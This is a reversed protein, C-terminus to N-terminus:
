NPLPYEATIKLGEADGSVLEIAGTEMNVTAVEWLDLEQMVADGHEFALVGEIYVKVHAYTAWFEGSNTYHVGVTYTKAEPAKLAFVEPGEGNFDALLFAPDDKPDDLAGWDPEPNLWYCDYPSNYWPDPEGNGDIDPGTAWPHTVHLDLDTGLGGVDPDGPTDWYLEVYLNEAPIATVEVEAPVCSVGGTADEVDLSFKYVGAISAMFTTEVGDEGDLTHLIGDPATVSWIYEVIDGGPSSSAGGDLHLLTLPTVEMGEAVELSAMPCDPDIAVGQVTLFVELDAQAAVISVDAVDPVAEGDIIPSAESPLYLVGLAQAVGPGLMLPEEPTPAFPLSSADIGIGQNGGPVMDISTISLEATGCNQILVESSKFAGVEVGGFDVEDPIM